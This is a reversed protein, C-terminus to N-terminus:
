EDYGRLKYIFPYNEKLIEKCERGCNCVRCLESCHFYLTTNAMCWSLGKKTNHFEQKLKEESIRVTNYVERYNDINTAKVRIGSLNSRIEKHTVFPNTKKYELVSKKSFLWSFRINANYDKYRIINYEVFTKIFDKGINVGNYSDLFSNWSSIDANSCKYVEKPRHQIKSSLEMFLDVAHKYLSRKKPIVFDLSQVLNKDM